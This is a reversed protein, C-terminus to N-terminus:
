GLLLEDVMRPLLIRPRKSVLARQKIKIAALLFVDLLLRPVSGGTAIAHSFM